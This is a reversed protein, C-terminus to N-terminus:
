QGNKEEEKAKARKGREVGAGNEESKGTTGSKEDSFVHLFPL